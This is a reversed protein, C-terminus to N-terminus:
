KFLKQVAEIATAVQETAVGIGALYLLTKMLVTNVANVSARGAELLRKGASLEALRQEKDEPDRNGYENDGRVTEIVTEVAELARKYGSGNHDLTVTRNAAPVIDTNFTQYLEEIEEEFENCYIAFSELVHSKNRILHALGKISISFESALFQHPHQDDILLILGNEIAKKAGEEVRKERTWNVAM